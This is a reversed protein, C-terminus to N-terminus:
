LKSDIELWVCEESKGCENTAICCYHGEDKVHVNVITLICVTTFCITDAPFPKEQFSVTTNPPLTSSSNRNWKYVLGGYSWALCSFTVTAGPRVVVPEPLMIMQPCPVVYM